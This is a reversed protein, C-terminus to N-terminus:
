FHEEVICVSIDPTTIIANTEFTWRNTASEFKAQHQIGLSDTSSPELACLAIRVTCIKFTGSILTLRIPDHDGIM